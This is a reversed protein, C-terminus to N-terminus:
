SRAEPQGSRLAQEIWKRFDEGEAPPPADDWLEAAATDHYLSGHNGLVMLNVGGGIPQGLSWTVVASSGDPFQLTLAVQGSALSGIAYLRSPPLGLWTQVAACLQALRPLTDTDLSQLSYRVFVPKGLRKSALTTQVTRHLDLLTPM